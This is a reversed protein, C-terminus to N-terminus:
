GRKGAKKRATKEREYENAAKGEESQIEAVLRRYKRDYADDREKKRRLNERALFNADKRLERMAGKRERRHEARLKALEARERDPDYHKSPDFTEEFKPVHTRIALPRHHHLELPRRSVHSLRLTRSLFATAQATSAQADASLHPRCSPSTLHQLVLLAPQFTEYFAPKGSWTEAAAKLVATTTSLLSVKLSKADASTMIDSPRCDGLTPKRLSIKQCNRMRIGSPPDHIPFFGPRDALKEPALSCLINLCFNMLEPVYRKSLKQYEIALISLYTGTAYDALREPVKQGLYRAISLMAPTIVQHFHDSTPFTTAAAKLIILDSITPSLPRNKSMEEIHARYEQAVEIPYAKALSHVHRILSELTQMPPESSGALYAVHKVLARSFNALKEKNRSDLKPHYLARIRQVAIPLKPLALPKFIELMETHSQPCPFTYPVGYQDDGSSKGSENFLIHKSEAGTLLGKTFEDDSESEPEEDDKEAESASEEDEDTDIDSGSAVLDDDIIFDDEDDFGLETATARMKIGRGLGFEDDDEENIPKASTVNPTKTLGKDDDSNEDEDDSTPQMGMMRRVRQEELEQLRRSEDEAVEEETRTRMSPQARRDQIMQKLRLDYDKEMAKKDIGLGLSDGQGTNGNSGGHARDRRFLLAQLDPLEKDIEARLDDDADKAAQREYKHLKSKAMVEDMVEKKTKKREPEQSEPAGDEEMAELRMRKLRKRSTQSSDSDGDSSLDAEDFDDVVTEEQDFSLSQGMHTLGESPEDDELDFLSNKKYNRQKERAFRELM